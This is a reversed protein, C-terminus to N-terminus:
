KEGPLVFRKRKAQNKKIDFFTKDISEGKFEVLGTRQNHLIRRNKFNPILASFGLTDSEKSLDTMTVVLDDEKLIYDEPVIGEYYKFKDSKFGGGVGFNGPTLLCDYTEYDKFDRGKFAYGHKISIHNELKTLSWNNEM